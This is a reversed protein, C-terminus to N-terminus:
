DGESLVIQCLTVFSQSLVGFSLWEKQVRLLQPFVSIGFEVTGDLVQILKRAATTKSGRVCLMKIWAAWFAMGPHNSDRAGLMERQRDFCGFAGARDRPEM